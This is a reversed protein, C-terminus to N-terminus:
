FRTRVQIQTTLIHEILATFNDTKQNNDIFNDVIKEVASELIEVDEVTKVPKLNYSLLSTFFGPDIKVAEEGAFTELEKSDGVQSLKTVNAGM